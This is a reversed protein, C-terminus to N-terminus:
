EVFGVEHAIGTIIQAIEAEDRGDPDLVFEVGISEYYPERELSFEEGVLRLFRSIGAEEELTALDHESATPNLQQWASKSKWWGLKPDRVWPQFFEGEANPTIRPFTYM